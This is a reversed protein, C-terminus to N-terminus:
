VRLKYMSARVIKQQVSYLSTLWEKVFCQFTDSNYNCNVHTQTYTNVFSYHWVSVFYCLITTLTCTVWYIKLFKYKCTQCRSWIYCVFLVVFVMTTSYNFLLWITWPTFWCWCDLGFWITQLVGGDDFELWIIGPMVLCFVGLEMSTHHIM